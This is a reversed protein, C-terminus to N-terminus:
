EKVGKSVRVREEKELLVKDSDKWKEGKLEKERETEGEPVTANWEPGKGERGTRLCACSWPSLLPLFVPLIRSFTKDLQCICRCVRIPTSDAFYQALPRHHRTTHSTPFLPLDRQAEAQPTTHLAPDALVPLHMAWSTAKKVKSVAV